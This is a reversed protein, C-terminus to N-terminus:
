EVVFTASINLSAGNEMNKTTRINGGPTIDFDCNQTSGWIQNTPRYGSPLSALIGYAAVSSTLTMGLTVMAVNGRKVLACQGSILTHVSTVTGETKSDLATLAAALTQNSGMLSSQVNQIIYDGLDKILMQYGEASDIGLLYDTNAIGSATKVPLATIAQDAM